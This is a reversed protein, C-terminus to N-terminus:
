FEGTALHRAIAMCREEIIRFSIVSSYDFLFILILNFRKVFGTNFLYCSMKLKSRITLSLNSNETIKYKKNCKICNKDHEM